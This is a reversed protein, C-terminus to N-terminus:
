VDNSEFIVKLDITQPNLSRDFRRGQTKEMAEDDLTAFGSSKLLKVQAVAGDPKVNVRVIVALKEDRSLMPPPFTPPPVTWSELADFLESESSVGSDTEDSVRQSGSVDQSSPKETNLPQEIPREVPEPKDVTQIESVTNPQPVIVQVLELEFQNRAKSFGPEPLGSPLKFFLLLHFVLSITMCLIFNNKERLRREWDFEYTLEKEEAQPSM